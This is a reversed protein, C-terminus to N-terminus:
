KRNAAASFIVRGGASGIQPPASPISTSKAVPGSHQAPARIVTPFSGSQGPPTQYPQAPTQQVAPFTPNVPAHRVPQVHVQQAPARQVNPFTQAPVVPPVYVQQASVNQVTPFTQAPVVPPVYVQQAPARQVNPFTQAPVVPPVHVQQAPARQVSPFTPHAPPHHIVTQTPRAVPAAWLRTWFSPSSSTNWNTWYHRNWFSPAPTPQVVVPTSQVLVPGTQPHHGWGGNPFIRSFIWYLGLGVPLVRLLASLAPATNNFTPAIFFSLASLAIVVITDARILPQHHPHTSGGGGFISNIM